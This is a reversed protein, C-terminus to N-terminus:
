RRAYKGWGEEEGRAVEYDLRSSECGPELLLLLRRILLSAVSASLKSVKSTAPKRLDSGCWQDYYSAEAGFGAEWSDFSLVAGADVRADLNLALRESSQLSLGDM